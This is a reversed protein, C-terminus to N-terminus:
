EPIKEFVVVEGSSLHKDRYKILGDTFSYYMYNEPTGLNYVQHYLKELVRLTDENQGTFLSDTVPISPRGFCHSMAITKLRAGSINRIEFYGDDYLEPPTLLFELGYDSNIYKFSNIIGTYRPGCGDVYPDTFFNESEEIGQGSLEVTDGKVLFKLVANDEYPVFMKECDTLHVITGSGGCEGCGTQTLAVISLIFFLRINM